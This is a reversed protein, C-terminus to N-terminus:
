EIYIRYNLLVVAGKLVGYASVVLISRLGVALPSVQIFLWKRDTCVVAATWHDAQRMEPM